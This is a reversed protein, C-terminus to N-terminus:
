FAGVMPLTVTTILVASTTGAKSCAEGSFRKVDMVHAPEM